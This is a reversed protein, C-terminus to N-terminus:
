NALGFRDGIRRVPNGGAVSNPAIDSSVVSGPRIFSDGGITHGFVSVHMGLWVNDGIWVPTQLYYVREGTVTGERCRRYDNSQSFITCYPSTTFRRGITVGGHGQIITGVGIHSNSGIAVHGPEADSHATARQEMKAHPAPGAVIVVNKDIWVNDGFGIWRPAVLSVGIDIVLNKGCKGLRARYFWRRLRIGVPGGINRLLGAIL